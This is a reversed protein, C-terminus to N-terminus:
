RLLKLVDEATMGTSVAYSPLRLFQDRRLTSEPSSGVGFLYGAQGALDLVRDNVGGQPYVVAFVPQKTMQELLSRSQELELKVQANTLSRLDDGAHAASQIDLGNAVLTQLAKETIGALGVHRTEVFLTARVRNKALLDSVAAVNEPTVGTVGVLVSKAPLRVDRKEQQLLLDRFDRFALVAGGVEKVSKAHAVLNEVAGQASADYFLIPLAFSAQRVIFRPTFPSLYKMSVFGEKGQLPVRAWEGEIALPHVFARGPIEGLKTSGQSAAQRVNLFSFNVYYLGAFAKQEEALREESVVKAIYRSAVFGEKGDPLQVKAWEGNTFEVVTLPDGDRLTALLAAGTSPNARVKLIENTVKYLNEGGPKPVRRLAEYATLQSLDLAVPPPAASSSTGSGPASAAGVDVRPAGNASAGTGAAASSGDDGRALRHFRAIDEETFVIEEEEPMDGPGQVSLRQSSCGAFMLGFTAILLFAVLPGASAGRRRPSRHRDPYRPM